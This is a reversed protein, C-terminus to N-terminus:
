PKVSTFSGQVPVSSTVSTAGFRLRPSTFTGQNGQDDVGAVTFDVLGGAAGGFSVCLEACPFGIPPIRNGGPGCADFLEGFNFPQASSFVGAADYFRVQSSTVNFAVGSMEAVGVAFVFNPRALGCAGAPAPPVPPSPSFYFQLNASTQQRVGVAEWAQTIAREAASGGGYLDQASQITAQRALFFNANAPLMMTFARYFVKEMQERNAAGVGQVSLGSTRNTGGEVALYFAHNSIGSNIHVGGNDAAGIFRRTYHDPDGYAQPDAMSRLGGPTIVDEGVEYNAARGITAAHFFEAGVGMIDSFSENLAGAEGQYILNSSFQTIGHTLEHAVIDLSGSVFNWSQGGLRVNPPLGVGYVMLRLTPNWFANTFFASNQNFYPISFNDRSVPHIISRIALDNNDLGRRGFRKYYYDYTWGAYVHGDVVAGDSWDNDGDVALDALTLETRRNLIDFVRALNGKLDYTLISPPRLGDSTRYSGGALDTSIKKTDGLVGHGTGVGSQTQLDTFQLLMAGSQADVFSVVIDQPFTTVLRYALAFGGADLPLVVLEPSEIVTQANPQGLTVARAGDASLRPATDLAIGRYLTGFMSVPLGNSDIQRTLEAGVIRVGDHYQALREHRRGAMLTDQRARVVRLTGNRQLRTVETDWARLDGGASSAITFAQTGLQPPLAQTGVRRPGVLLVLATTVGIVLAPRIHM